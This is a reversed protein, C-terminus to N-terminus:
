CQIEQSLCTCIKPDCVDGCECGTLFSPDVREVGDRLKYSDVFEFNFDPLRNEYSLSVPPGSIGVLKRAYLAPLQHVISTDNEKEKAARPRFKRVREPIKVTERSTAKGKPYMAQDGRRLEALM